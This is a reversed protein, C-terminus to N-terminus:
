EYPLVAPGTAQPEPSSKLKSINLDKRKTSSIQKMPSAPQPSCPKPKQKKSLQEAMRQQKTETVRKQEQIGKIRNIYQKPFSLMKPLLDHEYFSELNCIRRLTSVNESALDQIDNLVQENELYTKWFLTYYNNEKDFKSPMDQGPIADKLEYSKTSKDILQNLRDAFPHDFTHAVLSGRYNHSAPSPNQLAELHQSTFVLNSPM